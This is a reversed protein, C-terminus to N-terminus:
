KYYPVIKDSGKLKSFSGRNSAIFQLCQSKLNDARYMDGRILLEFFNDVKLSNYMIKLM